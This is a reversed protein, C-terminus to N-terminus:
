IFHRLYFIYFYFYICVRVAADATPKPPAAQKFVVNSTVVNSTTSTSLSSAAVARIQGSPGRILQYQKAGVFITNFESRQITSAPIPKFNQKILLTPKGLSGSSVAATTVVSVKPAIVKPTGPELLPTQNLSNSFNEYFM